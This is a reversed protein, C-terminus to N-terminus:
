ERECTFEIPAGDPRTDRWYQQATGTIGAQGDAEVVFTGAFRLSLDLSVRRRATFAGSDSDLNSNSVGNLSNGSKMQHQTVESYYADGPSQLRACDYTGDFRYPTSSVTLTATDSRVGPSSATVVIRGSEHFVGRYLAEAQGSSLVTSNEPNVSLGAARFTIEAGDRWSGDPEQIYVGFVVDDHQAIAHANVSAIRITSQTPPGGGEGDGGCGNLVLAGFLAVVPAIM